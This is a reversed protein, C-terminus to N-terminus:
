IDITVIKDFNLLQCIPVETFIFKNLFYFTNITLFEILSKDTLFIFIYIILTIKFMQLLNTM